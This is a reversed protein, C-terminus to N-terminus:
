SFALTPPAVRRVVDIFEQLGFPKALVAAAGLRQALFQVEQDAFASILIFKVRWDGFRVNNLLELGTARPMRIDSVILDVATVPKFHVADLALLRLADEGDCAELVEYEEDRLSQALLERMAVDDEVVLVRTRVADPVPVNFVTAVHLNPHDTAPLRQAM